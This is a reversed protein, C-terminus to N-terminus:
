PACAPFSIVPEPDFPLLASVLMPIFPCTPRVEDEHSRRRFSLWFAGHAGVLAALILVAITAAM